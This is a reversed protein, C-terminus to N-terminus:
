RDIFPQLRSPSCQLLISTTCNHLKPLILPTLLFQLLYWNSQQIIVTVINFYCELILGSATSHKWFLSSDITLSINEIMENNFSDVPSIGSSIERNIIHINILLKSFSNIWLFIIQDILMLMSFSKSHNSM